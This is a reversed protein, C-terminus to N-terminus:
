PEIVSRSLGIGNFFIYLSLAVALRVAVMPHIFPHGTDCYTHCALSGESSLPWSRRTDTLIKFGNVPLPSTEMHTPRLDVFLEVKHRIIKISQIFFDRSKVNNEILYM